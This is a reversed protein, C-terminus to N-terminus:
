ISGRKKKPSYHTMSNVYSSPNFWEAIAASSKNRKKKRRIIRTSVLRNEGEHHIGPFYTDDPAQFGEKSSDLPEDLMNQLQPDDATNSLQQVHSIENQLTAYGTQSMPDKRNEYAPMDIASHRTRRFSSAQAYQSPKIQYPGVKYPLM